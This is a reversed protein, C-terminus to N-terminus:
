AQQALPKGPFHAMADYIYAKGLQFITEKELAQAFVRLYTTSSLQTRPNERPVGVRQFDLVSFKDLAGWGALRSKIQAEQLDWKYDTAYGCANITMEAQYGGRYFIALKTTPPPPHGRTGSVHVRNNGLDTIQVDSIDAKVDSNLYIDGQLEYVFQGRVTDATVIGNLAEAKTIVADGNYQIEAIPLGLDLLEEIKHRYFGAYNAGSGYTSCEILHGAILSGALADFNSEDWNHWWAAAAIVPSADAVRGCIIVDAGEDLGRRIARYGLYANASLVPMAERHRLFCDTEDQYQVSENEGDLHKLAGTEVEQLIAEIQSMVYDGDVWAVRTDLGKEKAQGHTDIALMICTM